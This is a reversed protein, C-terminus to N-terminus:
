GWGKYSISGEEDTRRYPIKLKNLRDIIEKTPHGYKNRAGCSIIAVSPKVTVLFEECSSTNSGHHGLKLIDCRLEPHDRIIQREIQYPADGTLLYTKGGVKTALVLSKDNEEQGEYINYNVFTMRGVKLPFDKRETIYRGVRFKACLTSVAGVHDFDGHSAILADIHYIRRKLLFPILSEEAMDFGINGGTDVM